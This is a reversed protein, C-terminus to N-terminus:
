GESVASASYRAVKGVEAPSHYLELRLKEGDLSGDLYIMSIERGLHHAPEGGLFAPPSFGAAIWLPLAQRVSWRDKMGYGIHTGVGQRVWQRVQDLPADPTFTEIGSVKGARARSFAKFITTPVPEGALAALERALIESAYTAQKYVFGRERAAEILGPQAPVVFGLHTYGSGQELLWQVARRDALLSDLLRPWSLGDLLSRAEGLGARLGDHPRELLVGLARLRETLHAM